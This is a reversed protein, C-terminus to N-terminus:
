GGGGGAPGSGGPGPGPLRPALGPQAPRRFARPPGGALRGGRRPFVGPSPAPPHPPLRHGGAAAPGLGGPPPGGARRRPLAGPALRRSGTGGGAGAPSGDRGAAPRPGGPAPGGARGDGPEPGGSGGAMRTGPLGEIRGEIRNWEIRPKLRGLVPHSYGGALLKLVSRFAARSLHRYPYARRILRFLREEEWGEEPGAAAMAAVQQALVDLCNEPVRTEEVAGERAAQAVAVAEVLDLPTKALIRGKSTQTLL